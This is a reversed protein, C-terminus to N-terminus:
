QILSFEKSIKERKDEKQKLPKSTRSIELHQLMPSILMACDPGRIGEPMGANEQTKIWGKSSTEDNSSARWVM